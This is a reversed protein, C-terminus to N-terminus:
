NCELHKNTQLLSIKKSTYATHNKLFHSIVPNAERVLFRTKKAPLRYPSVPAPNAM